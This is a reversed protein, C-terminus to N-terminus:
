LKINVYRLARCIDNVLNSPIVWIKYIYWYLTTKITASLCKFYFFSCWVKNILQLTFYIQPLYYFLKSKQQAPELVNYMFHLKNM